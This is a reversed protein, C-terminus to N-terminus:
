PEFTSVIRFGIYTTGISPAYNWRNASRAFAAEDYYSGGRLVKTELNEDSADALTANSPDIKGLSATDTMWDSTWEWVNGHMDYLNWQNPAYSSVTTPADITKDANVDFVNAHSLNLLDTKNNFPTDSGARCAVEWEAETPLRYVFEDSLASLKECFSKAEAWTVSHIPLDDGLMEAEESLLAPLSGMVDLWQKQTVETEAVLFGRSLQVTRLSEDADRQFETDPSGLIYTGAPVFRMPIGVGATHVLAGAPFAYKNLHAIADPHSEEIQTLQKYYITAQATDGLDTARKALAVLNDSASQEFVQLAEYSQDFSSLAEFTDTNELERLAKYPDSFRKWELAAFVDLGSAKFASSREEIAGIIQAVTQEILATTYENELAQKEGISANSNRANELQFFLADTASSPQASQGLIQAYKKSLRLTESLDERPQEKIEPPPLKSAVLLSAEEVITAAESALAREAAAQEPPSVTEPTSTEIPTPVSTASAEPTEATEELAVKNPEESLDKSKSLFVFGAAGIASVILICVIVVPVKSGKSKEDESLDLLLSKKAPDSM